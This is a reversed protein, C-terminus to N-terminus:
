RRWYRWADIVSLDRRPCIADALGQVAQEMAVRFARGRMDEVESSGTLRWLARDSGLDFAQVELGVRTFKSYKGWVQDYETLDTAVLTTVGFADWFVRSDEVTPRGTRQVRAMAGAAWAGRGRVEAEQVLDRGGVVPMSERLANILLDAAGEAMARNDEDAVRALVLSRGATVCQASPPGQASRGNACGALAAVLLVLGALRARPMPRRKREGAAEPAAGESPGRRRRRLLVALRHVASSHLQSVRSETVGLVTGIERM